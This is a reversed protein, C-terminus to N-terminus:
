IRKMQAQIMKVQDDLIKRNDLKKVENILNIAERKRRKMVAIGALNLKAMAQDTKMRLGLSLAKRFFREAKVASQTQAHILGTLYYYYAEQSKPLHEPQKIRELTRKAKDFKGRRLHLFALLILEHKFLSLVFLGAVFIFFIGNGINGITFQYVTWGLTAAILFYKIIKNIMTESKATCLYHSTRYDKRYFSM